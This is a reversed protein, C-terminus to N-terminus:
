KTRKILENGEAVAMGAAYGTSWSLQLNYGGTPGALDLIEGALFLNDILKSRMTSPDVEKLDIGGATVM